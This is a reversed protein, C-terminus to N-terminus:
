PRSVPPSPFLLKYLFAILEKEDKYWPLLRTFTLDSQAGHAILHRNALISSVSAKHQDQWFGDILPPWAEDFAVFLQSINEHTANQFRKLQKSIFRHINPPCRSGCYDGIMIVVSRELLGACRVCLYQAWHAQLESDANLAPARAFLHDLPDILTQIRLWTM